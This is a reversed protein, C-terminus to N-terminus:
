PRIPDRWLIYSDYFWCHSFGALEAQCCIAKTRKTGM